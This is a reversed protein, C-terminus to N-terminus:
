GHNIAEVYAIYKELADLKGRQRFDEYIKFATIMPIGCKHMRMVYGHM